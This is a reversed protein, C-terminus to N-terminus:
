NSMALQEKFKRFTFSSISASGRKDSSVALQENIIAPSIQTSM